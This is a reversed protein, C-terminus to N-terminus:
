IDRVMKYNALLGGAYEATISYQFLLGTVGGAIAHARSDYTRVRASTMNNSADYTQQDVVANDHHLGLIRAISIKVSSVDILEGQKEYGADVTHASDLYLQAIATFYGEVSPVWDVSYVGDSVYPASLTDVLAGDAAYVRIQAHLDSRGDATLVQLPIPQNVSASLM